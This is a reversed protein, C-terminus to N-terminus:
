MQKLLEDEAAKRLRPLDEAVSKFNFRVESALRDFVREVPEITMTGNEIKVTVEKRIGLQERLEKPVQIRGKSDVRLAVRKM